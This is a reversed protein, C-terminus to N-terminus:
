GFPMVVEAVGAVLMIIGVVFVSAVTAMIVSDLAIFGGIV